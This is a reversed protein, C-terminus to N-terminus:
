SFIVIKYTKKEELVVVLACITKVNKYAIM